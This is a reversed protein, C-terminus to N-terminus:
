ERADHLPASPVGNLRLPAPPAAGPRRRGKPEIWLLDCLRGIAEGYTMRGERGTGSDHILFQGGGALAADDQYGVLLVSHYSGACVPWGARLVAKCQEIQAETVGQTGDNPRIWHMRLGMRRIREAFRRAAPSPQAAPDLKPAYPMDAERCIGYKEFGNWLDSFFHGDGNANHTVQNAAWNLYEPSLPLSRRLEKSVVYELAGTVTFVSCTGRAGQSRVPIRLSAFVPRLDVFAPVPAQSRGAPAALCLALALVRAYPM